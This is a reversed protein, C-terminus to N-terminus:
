IWPKTQSSQKKRRRKECMRWRVINKSASARFDFAFINARAETGLGILLNIRLFESCAHLNFLVSVSLGVLMMGIWITEERIHFNNQLIQERACVTRNSNWIKLRSRGRFVFYTYYYYCYSYYEPSTHIVVIVRKTHFHPSFFHRLFICVGCANVAAVIVAAM